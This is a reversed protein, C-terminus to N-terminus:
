LTKPTRRPQQNTDDEAADWERDKAESFKHSETIAEQEPERDVDMVGQNEHTLSPDAHDSTVGEHETVPMNGVGQKDLVDQNPIDDGDGQITNHEHQSSAHSTTNDEADPTM